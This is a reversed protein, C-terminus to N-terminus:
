VAAVGINAVSSLTVEVLGEANVFSAPVTLVYTTSAVLAVDVNKFQGGPYKQGAKFTLTVAGAGNVVLLKDSARVLVGDTTLPTASASNLLTIGAQVGPAEIINAAQVSIKQAPM